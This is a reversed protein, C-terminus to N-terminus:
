FLWRADAHPTHSFFPIVRYVYMYVLELHQTAMAGGGGGELFPTCLKCQVVNINYLLLLTDLVLVFGVLDGYKKLQNAKPLTTQVREHQVLAVVLQKIFDTRRQM